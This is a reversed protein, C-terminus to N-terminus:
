AIWKKKTIEDADNCIIQDTEYISIEKEKCRQDQLDDGPVLKPIDLRSSKGRKMVLSIRAFYLCINRPMEIVALAFARSAVPPLASAAQNLSEPVFGTM